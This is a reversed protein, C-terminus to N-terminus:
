AKVAGEVSNCNLLSGSEFPKWNKDQQIRYAGYLAILMCVGIIMSRQFSTMPTEAKREEATRLFEFNSWSFTKSFSATIIGSIGGDLFVWGPSIPLNGM